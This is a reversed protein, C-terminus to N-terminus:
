KFRGDDHAAVQIWIDPDATMSSFGIDHLAQLFSIEM